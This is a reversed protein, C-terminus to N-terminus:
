NVKIARTAIIIFNYTKYNTINNSYKITQYIFMTSSVNMKKDLHLDVVM